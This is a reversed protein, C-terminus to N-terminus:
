NRRAPVTVRRAHPEARPRLLLYLYYDRKVRRPNCMITDCRSGFM